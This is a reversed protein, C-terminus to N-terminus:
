RRQDVYTTFHYLKTDKHKWFACNIKGINEAKFMKSSFSNIYVLRIYRYLILTSRIFRLAYSHTRGWLVVTPSTNRISCPREKIAAGVMVRKDCLIGADAPIIWPLQSGSSLSLLFASYSSNKFAKDAESSLSKLMYNIRSRSLLDMYHVLCAIYTYRLM